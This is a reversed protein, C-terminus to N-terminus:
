RKALPLAEVTLRWHERTDLNIVSIVPNGNVDFSVIDASLRHGAAPNEELSVQALTQTVASDTSTSSTSMSAGKGNGKTRIYFDYTIAVAM